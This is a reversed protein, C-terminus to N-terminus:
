RAGGATPDDDEDPDDGPQRSVEALKAELKAKVAQGDTVTLKAAGPLKPGYKALDVGAWKLSSSYIKAKDEGLAVALEGLHDTIAKAIGAARGTCRPGIDDHDDYDDDRSRRVQRRQPPTDEAKQGDDDEAALGIAPQGQYRRAYTIASGLAQPSNGTPMHLPRIMLWQGSSHALLTSVEVGRQTTTAAQVLSLGVSSLHPMCADLTDALDAYKYGYGQKGEKGPITAKNSKVLAGLKGQAQALADFLKDCPASMVIPGLDIQGPQPTETTM